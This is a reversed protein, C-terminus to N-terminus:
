SQATMYVSFYQPTEPSHSLFQLLIPMKLKQQEDVQNKAVTAVFSSISSQLKPLTEVKTGLVYSCLKFIDLYQTEGLFRIKM